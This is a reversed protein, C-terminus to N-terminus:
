GQCDKCSGYLISRTMHIQFGHAQAMHAAMDELLHCDTPAMKGCRDCKLFFREEAKGFELYQFRVCKDGQTFLQRALNETVLLHLQRYVTALSVRQGLGRCVEHVDKASFSKDPSAALCALVQEKQRTHYVTSM